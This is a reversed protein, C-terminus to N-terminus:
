AGPGAPREQPGRVPAGNGPDRGAGAAGSGRTGDGVGAGPSGQDRNWVTGSSEVHECVACVTVWGDPPGAQWWEVVRASCRPCEGALPSVPSPVALLIRCERDIEMLWKRLERLADPRIHPATRWIAHLPDPRWTMGFGGLTWIGDALWALTEISAELRRRYATRGDGGAGAAVADGTPDSHGGPARPMASLTPSRLPSADEGARERALRDAAELLMLADGISHTLVMCHLALGHIM